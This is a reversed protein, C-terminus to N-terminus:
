CRFSDDKRIGAGISLDFLQGVQGLANVSIQGGQIDLSCHHSEDYYIALIGEQQAPIVDRTWNDGVYVGCSAALGYRKLVEGFLGDTKSLRLENSTVLIDVCDMLGLQDITWEQADRPGETIVLVTKNLSKLKQLLDLAGPKLILSSRLAEKYLSVLDDLYTETYPVNQSRLLASFREKRYETSTKGDSFAHATAKILIAQYELRLTEVSITGHSKQIDEFVALSAAKSALRFEHLTDDLDFGVWEVNSLLARLEPPIKVSM